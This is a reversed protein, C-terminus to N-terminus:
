LSRLYSEFRDEFTERTDPFSLKVVIKGHRFLYPNKIQGIYDIIREEKPLETNIKVDRIDVLTEPDVTRVDMKSMKELEKVTISM